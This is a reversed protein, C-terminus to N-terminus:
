NGCFKVDSSLKKDLTFHKSINCDWFFSMNSVKGLILGAILFEGSADLTKASRSCYFIM